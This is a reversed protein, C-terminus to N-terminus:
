ATLTPMGDLFNQWIETTGRKDALNQLGSSGHKSSAMGTMIMGWMQFKFNMQATFTERAESSLPNNGYKSELAAKHDAVTGEQQGTAPNTWPKQLDTKNLKQLTDLENLEDLQHQGNEDLRGAEKLKTLLFQSSAAPGREFYLQFAQAGGQIKLQGEIQKDLMHQAQAFDADQMKTQWAEHRENETTQKGFMSDTFTQQDDQMRMAAKERDEQLSMDYGYARGMRDVENAYAHDSLRLQIAERREDGTAENWSQWTQQSKQMKEAFQHEDMQLGTRGEYDAKMVQIQGKFGNNQLLLSLDAKTMDGTEWRQYAERESTTFSQNMHLIDVAEDHRGQAEALAVAAQDKASLSNWFAEGGMKEMDFGHTRAATAAANYADFKKTAIEAAAQRTENVAFEALREVERMHISSDTIGHAAFYSAMQEEQRKVELDVRSRVAAMQEDGYNAMGEPGTNFGYDKGEGPHQYQSDNNGRIQNYIDLFQGWQEDSVNAPKPPPQDGGGTQGSGDDQTTQGSGDQAGGQAQTAAKARASAIESLNSVDLLGQSQLRSVVNPNAAALKAADWGGNATKYQAPDYSKAEQLKATDTVDWEGRSQMAAIQAPTLHLMAAHNWGKGDPTRYKKKFDESATDEEAPPAGGGEVSGGAGGGATAVGPGTGVSTLRGNRKDGSIPPGAVPTVGPPTIGPGPNTIGRIPNPVGPSVPRGVGAGPNVPAVQAPPTVPSTGPSRNPNLPGHSGMSPGGSGGPFLSGGM